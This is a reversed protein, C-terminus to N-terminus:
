QIDRLIQGRDGAFGVGSRQECKTVATGFKKTDRLHDKYTSHKTMGKREEEDERAQSRM